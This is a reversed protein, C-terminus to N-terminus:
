LWHEGPKTLLPNNMFQSFHLDQAQLASAVVILALIIARQLAVQLRIETRLLARRMNREKKILEFRM